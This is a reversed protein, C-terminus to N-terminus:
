ARSISLRLSKKECPFPRKESLYFSVFPLAFSYFLSSMTGHGDVVDCDDVHCADTIPTTTIMMMMMMLLLLLLLLLLLMIWSLLDDEEDDDVDDDHNDMM